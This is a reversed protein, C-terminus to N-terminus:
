LTVMFLRDIQWLGLVMLQWTFDALIFPPPAFNLGDDNHCVKLLRESMYSAGPIYPLNLPQSCVDSPYSFGAPLFICTLKLERLM